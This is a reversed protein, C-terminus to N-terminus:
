YYDNLSNLKNLKDKRLLHSVLNGKYSYGNDAYWEKTDIKLNEPNWGIDTWILNYWTIDEGIQKESDISYIEERISLFFYDSQTDKEIKSKLLINTLFYGVANELKKLSHIDKIYVTYFTNNLNM